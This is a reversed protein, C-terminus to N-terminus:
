CSCSSVCAIFVSQLKAVVVGVTTLEAGAVYWDHVEGQFGTSKKQPPRLPLMKHIKDM